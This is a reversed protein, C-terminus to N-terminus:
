DGSSETRRIVTQQHVTCALLHDQNQARAKGRHTVGFLDLEDDHPKPSPEPRIATTLLDSLARGRGSASCTVPVM